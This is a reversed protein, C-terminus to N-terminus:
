KGRMSAIADSVEVQEGAPNLLVWKSTEHMDDEDPSVADGSSNVWRYGAQRLKRNQDERQRRTRRSEEADTLKEQRALKQSIKADAHSKEAIDVVKDIDTTGANKIAAIVETRTGQEFSTELISRLAPHNKGRGEFEIGTLQCKTMKGGGSSERKSSKDPESSSGTMISATNPPNDLSDKPKKEGYKAALDPYDALVEAPVPKGSQLASEVATRHQRIHKEAADSLSVSSSATRGYPVDFRDSWHEKKTMEWDEKPVSAKHFASPNAAIQDQLGQLAHNREPEEMSRLRFPSPVDIGAKEAIELIHDGADTDFMDSLKATKNAVADIVNTGWESVEADYKVRDEKRKKSREQLIENRARDSLKSRQHASSDSLLDIEPKSAGRSSAFEDRTMEHPQKRAEEKSPKKAEPKKENEGEKKNGEKGKGFDSLHTIGRAALGSPGAVIKGDGNIKVHTGGGENDSNITIWREGSNSGSAKLFSKIESASIRDRPRGIPRQGFAIEGTFPDFKVQPVSISKFTTAM